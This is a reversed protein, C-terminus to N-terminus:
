RAPHYRTMPIAIGAKALASPTADTVLTLPQSWGAVLHPTARGVKSADLCFCTKAAQRLVAQQFAAIKPHSNSIGTADMGEGGLFAVDFKWGALARISEPGLLVAQRHLFTGGLVHLDIGETGGLISAVPLSNTVVTLKEFPRRGVLLRAFAQITTGADLFITGTRPVSSLAAAGIRVKANRARHAREGLSAFSANYDALAGGRTRTIQGASAIAALDRRATAESIDLRQCIVGLPLFGDSRILQRLRERRQEVIHLPVRM